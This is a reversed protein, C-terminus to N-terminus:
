HPGPAAPARGGDQLRQIEAQLEKLRDGITYNSTTQSRVDEINRSLAEVRGSLAGLLADIEPRKILAGDIREHAADIRAVERHLEDQEEADRKDIRAKYEDFEGKTVTNDFRSRFIAYQDRADAKATSDALRELEARDRLAVKLDYINSNIPAIVAAFIVFLVGVIAAATGFFATWNTSRSAVFAEQQRSINRSVDEIQRTLGASMDRIQASTDARLRDVSESIQKAFSETNNVRETLAGFDIHM